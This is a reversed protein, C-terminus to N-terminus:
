SDTCILKVEIRGRANSSSNAWATACLLETSNTSCTYSWYRSKTTNSGVSKERRGEDVAEEEEMAKGEVDDLVFM